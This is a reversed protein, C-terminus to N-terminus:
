GSAGSRCVHVWQPRGTASHGVTAATGRATISICLRRRPRSPNTTRVTAQPPREIPTMM